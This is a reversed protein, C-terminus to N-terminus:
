FGLKESSIVRKNVQSNSGQIVKIKQLSNSTEKAKRADSSYQDACLKYFKSRALKDDQSPENAEFTTHHVSAM